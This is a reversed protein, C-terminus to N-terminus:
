RHRARALEVLHRFYPRRSRRLLDQAHDLARRSVSVSTQPYAPHVVPSVDYLDLDDIDRVMVGNEEAWRENEPKVGFAFSMGRLDGRKGVCFLDRAATTDPLQCRFRLGFDNQSLKLTGSRTSGLVEVCRYSHDPVCVVDTAADNLARSFAGRRIRERFGGLDTSLSNFPAAYGSLFMRGGEEEARLEALEAPCVRIERDMAAGPM